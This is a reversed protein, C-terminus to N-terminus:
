RIWEAEHINNENGNSEEQQENQLQLDEKAGAKISKFFEDLQEETLGSEIMMKVLSMTIMSVDVSNMPEQEEAGQFGVQIGEETNEITFLFTKKM